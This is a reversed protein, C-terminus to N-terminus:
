QRKADVEEDAPDVIEDDIEQPQAHPKPGHQKAPGADREGSFGFQECAWFLANGDEHRKPLLM